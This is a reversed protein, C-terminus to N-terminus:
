GSAKTARRFVYMRGKNFAHEAMIGALGERGVDAYEGGKM